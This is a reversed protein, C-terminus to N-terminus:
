TGTETFTYNVTNDGISVVVTNTGPAAGLTFIISARGKSDTQVLQPTGGAFSGGGSTISFQVTYGAAPVGIGKYGSDRWFVVSLPVPLTTGAKATQGDGQPPDTGLPISFGSPAEAKGHHGCAMFGSFAILAVVLRAHTRHM